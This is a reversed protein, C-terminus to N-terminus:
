PSKGGEVVPGTDVKAQIKGDPQVVHIWSSKADADRLYVLIRQGDPSPFMGHALFDFPLQGELLVRRRQAKNDVLEVRAPSMPDEQKTRCHLAYEGGRFTAVERTTWPSDALDAAAIQDFGQKQVATLPECTIKRNKLDIVITGECTPVSLVDGAWVGQPLTFGKPTVKQNSADLGAVSSLIEEAYTLPYEWGDWGVFFFRPPWQDALKMALYGSGNPCLPSANITQCLMVAPEATTLESLKRTKVDYVAFNGFPTVGLLDTTKYWILIKQGKPCWYCSTLCADRRAEANGWVELNSWNARGGLVSILGVQVARGEPGLASQACAVFPLTPSLALQRPQQEGPPLLVRTADKDLDYQLVSGDTHTYFFSRSDTNWVPQSAPGCGSLLLCGLLFPFLPIATRLM